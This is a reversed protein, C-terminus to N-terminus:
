HVLMEDMLSELWLSYSNVAVIMGCYLQEQTMVSMLLMIVIKKMM